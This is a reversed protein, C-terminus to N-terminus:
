RNWMKCEIEVIIGLKISMDNETWIGFSFYNPNQLLLPMFMNNNANAPMEFVSFWYITWHEIPGRNEEAKLEKAVLKWGSM